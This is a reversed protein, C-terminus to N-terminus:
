IATQQTETRRFQFSPFMVPPNMHFHLSLYVPNSGEHIQFNKPPQCHTWDCLCLAQFGREWYAHSPEWLRAADGQALWRHVLLLFPAVTYVISLKSIAPLAPSTGTSKTLIHEQPVGALCLFSPLWPRISMKVFTKRQKFYLLSKMKVTQDWHSCFTFARSDQRCFWLM